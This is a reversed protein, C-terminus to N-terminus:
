KLEKIKIDFVKELFDAVDLDGNDGWVDHKDHLIKWKIDEEEYPLNEERLKDWEKRFKPCESEGEYSAERLAGCKCYINYHKRFYEIIKKRDEKTLKIM